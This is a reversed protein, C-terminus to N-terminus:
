YLPWRDDASPEVCAVCFPHLIGLENDIDISQKDHGPYGQAREVRTHATQLDNTNIEYAETAQAKATHAQLNPYTTETVSRRPERELSGRIGELSAM